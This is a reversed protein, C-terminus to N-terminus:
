RRRRKAEALRAETTTKASVEVGGASRQEMPVPKGALREVAELVINCANCQPDFATVGAKPPSEPRECAYWAGPRLGSRPHLARPAPTATM